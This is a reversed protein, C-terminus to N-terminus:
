GAVATRVINVPDSTVVSLMTSRLAAQDESSFKKYHKSIKKKLLLAAQLRCAEDPNGQIQQLLAQISGPEKVFPKLLKEAAKIKATDSEKLMELVGQLNTPNFLDM